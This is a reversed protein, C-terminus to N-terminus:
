KGLQQLRKARLRAAIDSVAGGGPGAAPSTDGGPASPGIRTPQTAPGTDSDASADANPDPYEAVGGLINQGMLVRTQPKGNGPDTIIYDLTAEKLTGANSPLVEGARVTTIDRTAPDVIFAVYGDDELMSGILVPTYVKNRGSTRIRPGGNDPRVTIRNKSFINKRSLVEYDSGLGAAHIQLGV